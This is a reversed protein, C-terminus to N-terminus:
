AMKEVSPDSAAVWNRANHSHLKAFNSKLIPDARHKNARLTDRNATWAKMMEGFEAGSENARQKPPKVGQVGNEGGNRAWIRSTQHSLEMGMASAGFFGSKNFLPGSCIEMQEWFYQDAWFHYMICGHAGFNWRHLVFAKRCMQRFDETDSLVVREGGITWTQPGSGLAKGALGMVRVLWGWVDIELLLMKRREPSCLETAGDLNLKVYLEMCFDIFRVAIDKKNRALKSAPKGKLRIPKWAGKGERTLGFKFHLGVDHSFRRVLDIIETFPASSSYKDMIPKLM